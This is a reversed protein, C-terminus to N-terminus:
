SQPPEGRLILLERQCAKVAFAKAAQYAEEQYCSVAAEYSDFEVVLARSYGNTELLTEGPSLARQKASYKESIPKWLQAYAEQSKEDAVKGTLVLWYGKM